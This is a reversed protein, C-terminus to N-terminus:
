AHLDKRRVKHTGSFPDYRGPLYGVALRAPLGAARALLITATAFDLSSGPRENALFSEVSGTLALQSPAGPDFQYNSRLFGSINWMRDFPGTAGETITQSLERIGSDSPPLSRYVRGAFSTEDRRVLDPRLDPRQSLVSYISGRALGGRERDEDSLDLRIPKYGMFLYGPQDQQVFYAQWYFNGEGRLAPELLPDASLRWTEGDFDSFIRGRWHSTIPSRVHMVVQRPDPPVQPGGFDEAAPLSALSSGEEFPGGVGEIAGDGDRQGKFGQAQPDLGAVGFQQQYTSEGLFPVVGTRQAGARGRYDPPLLAFALASCVLLGGGVIGLWFWVRRLQGDPWHVMAAAIQDELFAMASFTLFLASFVILFAVFAPDFARESVFFLVLGSMSLHAYLGGRTRLGFSSLAQVMLLYSAVILRDGTIGSLLDSRMAFSLAVIGAVILPSRWGLPSRRLYWSVAHGLAAIASAGLPVVPQGSVWILSAAVWLMTILSLMRLRQSEEPEDKFLGQLRSFRALLGIASTTM